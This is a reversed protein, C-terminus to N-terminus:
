GIIGEPGVAYSRGGRHKAPRLVYHKGFGWLTPYPIEHDHYYYGSENGKESYYDTRRIRCIARSKSGFSEPFNYPKEDKNMAVFYVLNSANGVAVYYEGEQYKQKYGEDSYLAALHGLAVMSEPAYFRTVQNPENGWQLRRYMDTPTNGAFPNGAFYGKPFKDRIPM